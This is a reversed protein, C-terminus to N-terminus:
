VQTNRNALQYAKPSTGVMRRFAANFATPSAYGVTTAVAAISHQQRLLHQAQEIRYQHLYGFVTTNFVQRFGQKLKRDNLGVQRALTILSPPNDMQQTLIHKAQHIREVDEPKLRIRSPVIMPEAIVQDLFLVLLEISKSELYLQKMRGQYPCNLIQELTLLMMPTITQFPSMTLAEDGEVLCRVDGPLSDLCHGLLKEFLDPKLHIDVALKPEQALEECYFRGRGAPSLLYYQGGTVYDGQWYRNTSSLNFVFEIYGDEYPQTDIVIVDEHFQYRHLTLDIGNPLSIDRKYGTALSSPCKVMVDSVDTPDVSSAQQWSMKWLDNWNAKSLAIAM